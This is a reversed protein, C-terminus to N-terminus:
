KIVKTSDYYFRMGNPALGGILERVTMKSIRDWKFNGNAQGIALMLSAVADVQSDTM